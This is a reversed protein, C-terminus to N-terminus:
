DSDENSNEEPESRQDNEEDDEDMKDWDKNKKSPVMFDDKLVNWTSPRSDEEDSSEEDKMDDDEKKVPNDILESKARPGGMLADLFATKNVKKLVKERKHELKESELRKTIDKQQARVANFLQVVGRTAVRKLAMERNRETVDPRVNLNRLEARKRKRELRELKQQAVEEELDEKTPKKEQEKVEGEVEFSLKQKEKTQPKPAKSLIVTRKNRPKEDALVRAISDAWGSKGKGDDGEEEGSSEAPSSDPEEEVHEEVLVSSKVVSTASM